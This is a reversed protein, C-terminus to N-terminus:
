RADHRLVEHLLESHTKRLKNKGMAVLQQATPDDAFFLQYLKRIRLPSAKLKVALSEIPLPANCRVNRRCMDLLYAEYEKARESVCRNHNNASAVMAKTRFGDQLGTAGVELMTITGGRALYDEVLQALEARDAERSQLRCCDWDDPSIDFDDSEEYM